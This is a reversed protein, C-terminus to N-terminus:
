AVGSRSGRAWTLSAIPSQRNARSVDGGVVWGVLTSDTMPTCSAAHETGSEGEVGSLVPSNRIGSQQNPRRVVVSILWDFPTARAMPAGSVPRQALDRIRSQQRLRRVSRGPQGTVVVADTM